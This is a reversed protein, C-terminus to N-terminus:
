IWIIFISISMMRVMKIKILRALTEKSDKFEEDTVGEPFINAGSCAIKDVLDPHQLAM